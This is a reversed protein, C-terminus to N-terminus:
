RIPWRRIAQARSCPDDPINRGASLHSFVDQEASIELIPTEIGALRERGSYSLAARWARAYSAPQKMTERVCLTLHDPAIRPPSKRAPPGGLIVEM